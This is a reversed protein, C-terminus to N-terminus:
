IKWLLSNINSNYIKRSKLGGLLTPVFKIYEKNELNINVNYISKLWDIQFMQHQEFALIIDSLIRKASNNSEEKLQKIVANLLNYWSAAHITHNVGDVTITKNQLIQNGGLAIFFLRKQLKGFHLNYSKVEKRWQEEYQGGGDYKKAEIIIFAKEFNVSLIQGINQPMGSSFGCSSKLLKWVLEDPLYQLLGIISSTTTDETHHFHTDTFAGKLKHHILAQLM